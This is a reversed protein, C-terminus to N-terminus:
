KVGTFLSHVFSLHCFLLIEQFAEKKREGVHALNLLFFFTDQDVALLKALEFFFFVLFVNPEGVPMLPAAYTM